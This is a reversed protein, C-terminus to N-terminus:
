VTVDMLNVAPAVLAMRPAHTIVARMRRLLWSACPGRTPATIATGPPRQASLLVMGRPVCVRARARLEEDSMEALDGLRDFADALALTDDLFRGLDEEHPQPEYSDVITGVSAVIGAAM